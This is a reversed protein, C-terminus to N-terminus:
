KLVDEIAQLEDPSFGPNDLARVCEEIQAARSAGVLASTVEPRRLVWAVAVQALTQGRAAALENLRRVRNLKEDTIRDPKFFSHPNAARSGAPIGELYKDTLLGQALPSFAICGVGEAALTELLGDEEVWRNFM